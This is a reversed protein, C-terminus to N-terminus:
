SNINFLLTLMIIYKYELVIIKKQRSITMFFFVLMSGQVAHFIFLYIFLFLGNNDLRQGRDGLFSQM